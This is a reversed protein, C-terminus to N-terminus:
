RCDHLYQQIVGLIDNALDIVGDPATMNWPDPGTSPGRDFAADYPPAGTPAYHQIVGLIDNALDIYGDAPLSQGPGLVDYYDWADKANRLGGLLPDLGAEKADPCGDNDNDPDESDPVTDGDTDVEPKVTLPHQQFFEWMLDTASIDHTTYGLPPFDPAGPWTHGGGDVIYLLVDAGDDCGTYEVLRVEDTVVNEQRGSTCGNHAAWSEMVDEDATDNDIPLRFQTASGGGGFPVLADDTGHFAIVPVPATDDCTEASNHFPGPPEDLSLPPYYAGAVPAIAAVRASLSCALRVSMMAGNSIGTSFVRNTDICLEAMVQDLVSDLFAVDDPEPPPLQVNNWHQTDPNSAILLGEPHVVVFGGGAEDARASLGSYFEQEIAASTFGHMNIVLAVPDAGNYSPPVHLRYSRTGEPAAITDITTGSAHPRGPFCGSALAQQPEGPAIVAVAALAAFAALAILARARLPPLSGVRLTYGFIAAAPWGIGNRQFSPMM